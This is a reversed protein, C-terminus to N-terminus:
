AAEEGTAGFDLVSIVDEVLAEEVVPTVVVM